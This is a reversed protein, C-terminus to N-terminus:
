GYVYINDRKALIWEGLAYQFDILSEKDHICIPVSNWLKVARYQFSSQFFSSKCLVKLRKKYSRQNVNWVELLCDLKDAQKLLTRTMSLTIYMIREHVTFLSFMEYLASM